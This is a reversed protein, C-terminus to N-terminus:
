REIRQKWVVIHQLQLPSPKLLLWDPKKQMPPTKPRGGKRLTLEPQSDDDKNEVIESGNQIKTKNNQNLVAKTDTCQNNGLVLPLLTSNVTLGSVQM